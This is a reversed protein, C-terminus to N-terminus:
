TYTTRYYYYYCYSVVVSHPPRYHYHAMLMLLPHTWNYNTLLDDADDGDADDDYKDDADGSVVAVTSAGFSVTPAYHTHIYSPAPWTNCLLPLCRFLPHHHYLFVELVSGLHSISEINEHKESM